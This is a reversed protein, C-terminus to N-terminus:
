LGNLARGSIAPRSHVVSIQGTAPTVAPTTIANDPTEIPWKGDRLQVLRQQYFAEDRTDQENLRNLRKKARRLVKEVALEKLSGPISLAVADVPKGSYLIVDRIERTTDAIFNPLPDDQGEGLAEERLAAVLEAVQADDFDGDALTLWNM